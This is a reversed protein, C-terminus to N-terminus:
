AELKRKVSAWVKKRVSELPIQDVIPAFFGEIVLREAQDRTLGRTELYFLSDEDVPGVAAGHTCRVVDNNLIELRPDSDAKARDSLLINKNTQSSATRRAQKDIRILGTFNSRSQGKLAGKYVLDSRTNSGSHNQRTQHDFYQRGDGFVLGLLDVEAGDGRLDANLEIRHFRAGLGVLLSQFYADRDLAARQTAFHWRGRGWGQLNVYRVRAGPGIFVEAGASALGADSEPSLLEDVLTVESGPEAVLLVRPFIGVQPGAPWAFAHLPAEVAVGAPVYLLVGGNWLASQLAALKGDEPRVLTGLRERLLEPYDRIAQDLGCFIVGRREYEARLSRFATGSGQQVVVGSAEGLESAPGRLGRPLERPSAVPVPPPGLPALQDLPLGTLDARRWGEQKQTPLPTAEYIAWAALRRARLWEPEDNQWSLEEVARRTLAGAEVAAVAGGAVPKLEKRRTTM